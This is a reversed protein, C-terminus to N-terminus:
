KEKCHLLNRCSPSNWRCAHIGQRRGRRPLAWGPARSLTESPQLWPWQAVKKGPPGALSPNEALSVWTPADTWTRPSLSHPGWSSAPQQSSTERREELGGSSGQWTSKDSRGACNLSCPSDGSSHALGLSVTVPLALGDTLVKGQAQGERDVDLCHAFGTGGGESHRHGEGRMTMMGARSLDKGRAPRRTKKSRIKSGELADKVQAALNIKRFCFQVCKAGRSSTASHSKMAQLASQFRELGARLKWGRARKTSKTRRIYKKM